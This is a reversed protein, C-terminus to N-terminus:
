FSTLILPKDTHLSYAPDLRPLYDAEEAEKATEEVVAVEVMEEVERQADPRHNRRHTFHNAVLMELYKSNGIRSPSTSTNTQHTQM